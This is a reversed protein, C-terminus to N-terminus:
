CSARVVVAFPGAKALGVAHCAEFSFKVASPRLNVCISAIRVLLVTSRFVRRMAKRQSGHSQWTVSWLELM